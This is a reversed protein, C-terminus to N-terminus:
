AVLCPQAVLRLPPQNSYAQDPTADDLGKIPDVAMTSISIDPLQRVPRASARTARLYVKEYKVSRWLREVFVNDRRWSLVRRTVWDLVVALHIFRREMPVLCEGAPSGITRRIRSPVTTRTRSSRLAVEIESSTIRQTRASAWFTSSAILLM